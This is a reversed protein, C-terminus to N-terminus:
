EPALESLSRKIEDLIKSRVRGPTPKFGSREVTNAIERARPYL